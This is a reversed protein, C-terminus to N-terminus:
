RQGGNLAQSHGLGQLYVGPENEALHLLWIREVVCDKEKDREKRGM